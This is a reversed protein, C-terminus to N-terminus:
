QLEAVQRLFQLLADPLPCLIVVVVRIVLRKVVQGRSIYEKASLPLFEPLSFFDFVKGDGFSSFTINALLELIWSDAGERVGETTWKSKVVYVTVQTVGVTGVKRGSSYVAPIQERRSRLVVQGLLGSFPGCWLALQSVNNHYRRDFFRPLPAYQPADARELPERSSAHNPGIPLFRRYICHDPTSTEPGGQIM